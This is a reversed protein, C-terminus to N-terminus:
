SDHNNRFFKLKFIFFVGLMSPVALNLFWLISSAAVVQEMVYDSLMAGSFYLGFVYLSVSGRVGLESLAITPIISMVLYIASIVVMAEPYSIRIGFMRFLIFFQFSFILYRAISIFLINLLLPAEYWTFIEVYREIKYYIRSSIKKILVSFTSFNLYAFIMVAITFLATMIVGSYAWDNMLHYQILWKHIFVLLAFIGFFLTTLFQALSGLMTILTAQIRNAKKLIFIRGLYDGVRNPMFMSVSIGALVAKLANGLSVEELRAILLKWKYSELLLNIPILLLVLLFLLQFTREGTLVKFNEWLTLLNHKYFLQDYLYYLTLVLIVLRILINYTKSLKAM